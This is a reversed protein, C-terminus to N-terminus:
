SLEEYQEVGSDGFRYACHYEQLTIDLLPLLCVAGTGEGLRMHGHIPAELGVKELIMKGAPEESVHSALMYSQIQPCIMQALLASIASIVGDIVIPIQYIGGALFMGTMAAIDFGGLKSLVDLPDEPDPKNKEIAKQIAAVKRKLGDSTLGAGRGTVQEPEMGLLVSAIASSTTTNGIGMEGTSVLQYGEDVAEKVLSIGAHIAQIAEKRSMAPGQVINKTGAAIKYQKVAPHVANGEMGVDAVMTDMHAAASMVNINASGKAIGEAVSRTVDRESQTVGEDVVGNDACVIIACRRDIHVDETGYIGALKIVMDEFIGLSGLPKCVHSWWVRAREMAGEDPEVIQIGLERMAETPVTERRKQM